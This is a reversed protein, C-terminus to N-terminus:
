YRARYCSVKEKKKKTKLIKNIQKYINSKYDLKEIAQRLKKKQRENMIKIIDEILLQPWFMIPYRRRSRKWEKVALDWSTPPKLKEKETRETIM